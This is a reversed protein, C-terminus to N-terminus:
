GVAEGNPLNVTYYTAYTTKPDRMGVNLTKKDSYITATNSKQWTIGSDFSYSFDGEPYITLTYYGNGHNIVEVYDIVLFARPEINKERTENLAITKPEPTQENAYCTFLGMNLILTMLMFVLITKKYINTKKINM